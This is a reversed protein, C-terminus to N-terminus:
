VTARTPGTHLFVLNIVSPREGNYSFHTPTRITGLQVELGLKVATAYLKEALGSTQTLFEDWLWFCCNFNSGMYGIELFASICDQLLQIRGHMAPDLYVNLVNLPGSPGKLMLLVDPYNVIDTCNKPKLIWLNRYVYAMIRLCGIRADITRPIISIWHPHLLPDKVLEGKKSKM